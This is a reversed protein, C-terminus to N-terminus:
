SLLSRALRKDEDRIEGGVVGAVGELDGVVGLM